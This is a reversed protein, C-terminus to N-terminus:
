EVVGRLGWGVLGKQGVGGEFGQMVGSGVGNGSRQGWGVGREEGVLGM